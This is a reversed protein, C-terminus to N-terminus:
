KWFENFTKLIEDVMIQGGEPGVTNSQIIAGYGGFGVARESPLYSGASMHPTKDLVANTLQVVMTEVAPSRAKIRTAFDTYLEFQTSCIALEGLRLVNVPVRFVPNPEQALKEYRDIIKKNWRLQGNKPDNKLLDEYNAKCKKYDAETVKREPLDLYIRKHKLVPNDDKSNVVTDYTENVACVVRRAIEELRSLQRLRDMRTQAQVQYRLHPSMDGAAGCLAVVTLDGGYKKRLAIRTPGWYDSSTQNNNEVEQSPCSVNVLMAIPKNNMNWFFLSNVDHDEFGEVARFDPSNTKGYMIATGNSYVARRNFAVAAFGLGYSYRAKERTEWAKKLAPEFKKIVYEIYEPGSMVPKGDDSKPIEFDSQYPASHTHTACIMIKDLDFGPIVKRVTEQMPRYMEAIIVATDMGIILASDVTKGNERSEILTINLELPYQCSKALRPKWQGCLCCYKDPTIDAHSTGVYLDAAQIIEATGSFIFFLLIVILALRNQKM